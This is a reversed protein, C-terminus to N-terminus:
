ALTLIIDFYDHIILGCSSSQLLPITAGNRHSFLSFITLLTVPLSVLSYAAIVEFVFV